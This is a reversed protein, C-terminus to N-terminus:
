CWGPDDAKPTKTSSHDLALGAPDDDGAIRATAEQLAIAVFPDIHPRM